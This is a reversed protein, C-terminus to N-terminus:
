GESDSLLRSDIRIGTLGSGAVQARGGAAYTKKRGGRFKQDKPSPPWPQNHDAEWAVALYATAGKATM